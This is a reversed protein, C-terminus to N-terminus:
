YPRTPESIHILSLAKGETPYTTTGSLNLVVTYTGTPAADRVHPGNALLDKINEVNNPSIWRQPGNLGKATNHHLHPLWKLWEWDPDDPNDTLVRIQLAEPDHFLALHCLM